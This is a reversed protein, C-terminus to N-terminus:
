PTGRNTKLLGAVFSEAHAVTHELRGFASGQGLRFCICSKQPTWWADYNVSKSYLGIESTIEVVDGTSVEVRTEAIM